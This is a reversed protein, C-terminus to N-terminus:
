LELMFVDLQIWIEFQLPSWRSLVYAFVLGEQERILVRVYAYWSTLFTLKEPFHEMRVLHIVGLAVILCFTGQVYDFSPQSLVM